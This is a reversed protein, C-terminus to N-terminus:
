GIIFQTPYNPVFTSPKALLATFVVDSTNPPIDPNLLPIEPKNSPLKVIYRAIIPPTIRIINIKM